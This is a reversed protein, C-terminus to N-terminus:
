NSSENERHLIEKSSNQPKLYQDHISVDEAYNTQNLFPNFGIQQVLERNAIKDDLDERRNSQRFNEQYISQNLIDWTNEDHFLSSSYAALEEKEKNTNDSITHNFFREEEERAVNKNVARKRASREYPEGLTWKWEM